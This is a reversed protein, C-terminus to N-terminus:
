SQKWLETPQGGNRVRAVATTERVILEPEVVVERRNDAEEAPQTIRRLITQAAIEGMKRLPQRVTTSARGQYAASEIDDFGVVSVDEPM